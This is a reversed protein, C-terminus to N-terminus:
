ADTERRRWERAATRHEGLRREEAEGREVAREMHGTVAKRDLGSKEALYKAGRWKGDLHAMVKRYAASGRSVSVKFGSYNLHAPDEFTVSMASHDPLVVDRGVLDFRLEDEVVQVHLLFDPEGGTVSSGRYGGERNDHHVLLVAADTQNVIRNISEWVQGMEKSSNEEIDPKMRQLPDLIVLAIGHEEIYAFLAEVMAPETLKFGHRHWLHFPASEHGRFVREVRQAFKVPHGEEEILLVPRPEPVSWGDYGLVRGGTSVARAVDLAVWTKLSKEVGHLLGKEKPSLLENVLWTVEETALRLAQELSLPLKVAHEVTCEDILKRFEEVSADCALWHENLDKLGAGFPDFYPAIEISSVRLGAAQSTAIENRMWAQGSPDGDGCLIVHELGRAALARYHAVTLKSGSGGTIAYAEYGAQRLTLADTEGEVVYAESMGEDPPHPWIPHTSVSGAEWSFGDHRRLKRAGDPWSFEAFTGLGLERLLKPDLRKEKAYTATKVKRGGSTRTVTVKPVAGDALAEMLTGFWEEDGCDPSFCTVVARDDKVSVHLNDASGCV